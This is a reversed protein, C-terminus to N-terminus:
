IETSLNLTISLLKKISDSMLEKFISDYHKNFLKLVNITIVIVNM